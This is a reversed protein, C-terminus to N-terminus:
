AQEGPQTATTMPESLGLYAERIRPDAALDDAAGRVTIRGQDMVFASDALELAILVDQEVLVITVGARNVQQLADSLDEVLRPALGLSMEDILLLDPKSMLGRAIACMQQEGGSLTGADQRLREQLVPFTDLVFAMDTEVAKAGDKRPYAGMLLNDRVSMGPFLRRGEPVHAIGAGVIADPPRGGVDQGRYLIRGARAPLLGSIARMLTTKGAGNSGIIAAIEGAKVEIDVGWLVGVDGYGTELGSVQLLLESM